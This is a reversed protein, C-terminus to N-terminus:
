GLGFFMPAMEEKKMHYGVDLGDAFGTMEVMM